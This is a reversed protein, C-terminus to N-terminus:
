PATRPAATVSEQSGPNFRFIRYTENQVTSDSFSAIEEFALPLPTGAADYSLIVVVERGPERRLIEQALANYTEPAVLWQRGKHWIVYTGWKGSMPYYISQGRLGAIPTCAYDIHGIVAANPHRADLFRAVERAATFPMMCDLASVIVGGAAQLAFLCLFAIRRLSSMSETPWAGANGLWWALLLLVYFHGQHRLYGPYFLTGFAILGLTGQVWFARVGQRSPFLFVSAVLLLLGLCVLPYPRTYPNIWSELLNSNWWDRRFAPLPVFTSWFGQVTAMWRNLSPNFEAVSFERDPSGILQWGAICVGAMVIGAAVLFRQPAPRCRNIWDQLTWMSLALVIIVAYVNAQCAMSLLIAPGVMASPRVTRIAAFGILLLVGLGYNRSIVAYEFVLFYGLCILLRTLRNGPAFAAVLFVTGTAILAHIGKMANADPWISGSLWLLIHWAMPHGEYGLRHVLEGFTPSGDVALLWAQWEDRWMVHAFIRPLLTLLYVVSLVAAFRLDLRPLPPSRSDQGSSGATLGLVPVPHDGPDGERRGEM